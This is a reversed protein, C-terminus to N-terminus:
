RLVGALGPMPTLSSSFEFPDRRERPELSRIEGSLRYGVGKRSQLAEAIRQRSAADPTLTLELIETSGTSVLLAESSPLDMPPLADVGLEATQLQLRMGVTSYNQLRLQLVWDGNTAVRLEQLSASPPFIRVKPGSQCASLLLGSLAILSMALLTRFRWHFWMKPM